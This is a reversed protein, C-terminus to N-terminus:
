PNRKIEQQILKVETRLEQQQNSIEKVDSSMNKVSNEIRTLSDNVKANNAASDAKDKINEKELADVREQIKPVDNELKKTTTETSVFRIYLGFGIVFAPICLKALTVIWTPVRVTRESKVAEVIDTSDSAQPKHAM